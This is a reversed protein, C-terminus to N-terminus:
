GFHLNNTLAFYTVKMRESTKVHSFNNGKTNLTLKNKNTLQHKSLLTKTRATGKQLFICQSLITRIVEFVTSNSVEFTKVTIFLSLRLRCRLPLSCCM